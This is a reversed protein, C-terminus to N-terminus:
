QTIVQFNKTLPPPSNVEPPSLVWIQHLLSKEQHLSLLNKALPPSTPVGRIGETVGPFSQCTYIYTYVHIYIYIYIYINYIAPNSGVVLSNRESARVSHTDPWSNMYTFIYIVDDAKSRGLNPCKKHWLYIHCIHIYKRKDKWHEYCLLNIVDHKILGLSPLLIEWFLRM